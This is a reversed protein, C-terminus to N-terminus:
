LEGLVGVTFGPSYQAVDAFWTEGDATVYGSNEMEFDQVHLGALFGYHWRRQDIYPRNQVKRQQACAALVLSALM